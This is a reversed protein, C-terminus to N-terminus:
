HGCCNVRKRVDAELLADSSREPGALQVPALLLARLVTDVAEHIRIHRDDPMQLLQPRRHLIRSSIHIFSSVWLSHTTQPNPPHLFSTNSSFFEGPLVRICVTCGVNYDPPSTYLLMKISAALLVTSPFAM